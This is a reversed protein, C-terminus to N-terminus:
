ARDETEFSDEQAALASDLKRTHKTVYMAADAASLLSDKTTGDEPYLAVGVSASGRLTHGSVSFPADFSRELRHAIEEAQARSGVLPLVAAFEDGGLRALMDASRLQRKMREAVEQLYLDGVRHGYVDNVQKFQDLDIYILGFVGATDRSEEILDAIYKEQSFRNHIDTLQDFESRHHLDAYLRRTEIALAALKTGMSLAEQEDLEAPAELAFGASLVGLVAGSRSPIEAHVVRLRSTDVPYPGLRAGGAIECWCPAGHLRFTELDAIEEIIEALPRVGNIDELIHSRRQELQAMRRELAAEAEIRAALAATQRRVKKKLTWGWMSVVLIALLLASVAISLNRVNLSSPRAVVAIDDFNRMLIDFPVKGDFPNSNSLMCIGTVQVKSGLPIEKLSLADASTGDAAVPHRYIASFLQGESALIYQDQTAERVAALVTGEVSVLDFLHKSSALLDPDEKLPTAPEYEQREEIEGATLTLFGNEVAPFGIADAENGIRLRARSQTQIWLSKDGNQLVLMSGPQYYTITGHVRIRQALNDVHYSALIRDMPTVPLSWPDAKAQQVIRVDSLSSIHLLIGTQQMKGDFRGSVAGTVEVDADLLRKPASADNSDVVADIEGGDTNMQLSINPVETSIVLDATRVRARITVFKCDFDGRILHDFDATEPKPVPGHRLFTIDSSRVYPRFSPQTTGRILIRDGPVLHASTTAMVYIAVDGDQVFLTEEYPRWYTVTAEFAVPLLHSAEPNSLAHIAKLTTIPAPAAAWAVAAWGLIAAAATWRKMSDFAVVACAVLFVRPYKLPLGRRKM